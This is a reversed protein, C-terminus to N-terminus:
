EDGDGNSMAPSLFVYSTRLDVSSPRSALSFDDTTRDFRDDM